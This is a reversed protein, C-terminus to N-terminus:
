GNARPAHDVSSNDDADMEVVEAVAKESIIM